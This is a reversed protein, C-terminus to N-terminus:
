NWLHKGTIICVLVTLFLLCIGLMRIPGCHASTFVTLETYLVRYEIM